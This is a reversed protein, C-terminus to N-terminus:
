FVECTAPTYARREILEQSIHSIVKQAESTKILDQINTIEKEAM